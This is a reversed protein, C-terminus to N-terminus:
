GHIFLQQPWWVAWVKYVEWPATAAFWAAATAYVARNPDIWLNQLYVQYNRTRDAATMAYGNMAIMVHWDGWMDTMSCTTSYNIAQRDNDAQLISTVTGIQWLWLNQNVSNTNTITAWASWIQHWNEVEGWLAPNLMTCAVSGIQTADGVWEMVNDHGWSQLSNHWEITPDWLMMNNAWWVQASQVFDINLHLDWSQLGRWANGNPWRQICDRGFQATINALEQFNRLWSQIWFDSSLIEGFAGTQAIATSDTAVWTNTVQLWILVDTATSNNGWQIVRDANVMIGWLWTQLAQQSLVDITWNWNAIQASIIGNNVTNGSSYAGTIVWTVTANQVGVVVQRHRTTVGNINGTASENSDMGSVILFDGTPAAVSWVHLNNDHITRHLSIVKCASKWTVRWDEDLFNTINKNCYTNPVNNGQWDSHTVTTLDWTTTVNFASTNGWGFPWYTIPASLSGDEYVWQLTISGNANQVWTVDVVTNDCDPLDVPWFEVENEGDDCEETITLTATCNDADVEFSVDTIKCVKDACCENTIVIDWPNPWASLAIGNWGIFNWQPNLASGGPPVSAWDMFISPCCDALPISECVPNGPDEELTYCLIISNTAANYEGTIETVTNDCVNPPYTHTYEIVAGCSDTITILATCDENNPVASVSAIVCDEPEPCFGATIINMWKKKVLHINSCWSACEDFSKSDIYTQNGIRQLNKMIDWM